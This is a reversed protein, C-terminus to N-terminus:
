HDEPRFDLDFYERARRCPQGSLCAGCL